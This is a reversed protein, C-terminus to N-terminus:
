LRGDRERARFCWGSDTSRSQATLSFKHGTPGLNSRAGEGTGTHAVFDENRRFVADGDLHQIRQRETVHLCLDLIQARVKVRPEARALM